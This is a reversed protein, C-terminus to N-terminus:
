AEIKNRDSRKILLTNTASPATNATSWGIRICNKIRPTPTIEVNVSEVPWLLSKV